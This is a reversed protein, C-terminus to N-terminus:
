NGKEWTLSFHQGYTGMDGAAAQVDGGPLSLSGVKIDIEWNVKKHLDHIFVDFM